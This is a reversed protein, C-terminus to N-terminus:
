GEGSCGECKCLLRTFARTPQRALAPLMTPSAFSCAADMAEKRVICATEWINVDLIDRYVPVVGRMTELKEIRLALSESLYTETMMNAINNMVEQEHVLGKAFQKVAGHM